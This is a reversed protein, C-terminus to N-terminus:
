DTHSKYFRIDDSGYFDSFSYCKNRDLLVLRKKKGMYAACRSFSSPPGMIFDCKSMAYLDEAVNGKMVMIPLNDFESIEIKENSFLLFQLNYERSFLGQMWKKYDENSYYFRGGAFNSYDGRRLHVAITRKKVNINGKWWVDIRKIVEEPFVIVKRIYEQDRQLAEYDVSSNWDWLIHPMKDEEKWQIRKGPIGLFSDLKRIIKSIINLLNNRNIRINVDDLFEFRIQFTENFVPDMLPYILEQKNLHANALCSAFALWQNCTQGSCNFLIIM